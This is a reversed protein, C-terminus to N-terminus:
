TRELVSNLCDALKAEVMFDIRIKTVIAPKPSSGICRLEIAPSAGDLQQISM